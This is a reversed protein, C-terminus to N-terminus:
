LNKMGCYMYFFLLWPGHLIPGHLTTGVTSLIFLCVASGVPELGVHVTCERYLVAKSANRHSSTLCCLVVWCVLGLFMPKIHHALWLGGDVM